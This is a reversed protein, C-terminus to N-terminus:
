HTSPVLVVDENKEALERLADRHDFGLETKLADRSSCRSEITLIEDATFVADGETSCEATFLGLEPTFMNIKDLWEYAPDEWVTWSAGPAVEQLHKAIEASSGCTTEYDMYSLGLGLQGEPPNTQDVYEIVLSKDEILDLIAQTQDLPCDAVILQIPTRDSM